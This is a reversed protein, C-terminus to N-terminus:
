VHAMEEGVSRFRQRYGDPSVGFARHFARRLTEGSGLGCRGAVADLGLSTEELATRAAELRLREVYRAPTVGVEQRFVRAFHRPSMAARRALAPISLDEALHGPIWDQLERLPERDASQMALQESFQSQGGPRKLFLVLWRAITLAARRGLDEEVLALALDTGATVGASTWFKGDRVFLADREVEVSPHWRALRDCLAWHTAARRGDLLDAAALLFSGNCVTALRRASGACRQLWALFEGDEAVARMGPGGTLLVSDLGEPPPLPGQATVTLGNSSPVELGGTSVVEIRYPARGERVGEHEAWQNAGSFVELPGALDLMQFRPFIVLAVKREFGLEVM